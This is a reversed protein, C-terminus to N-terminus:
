RRHEEGGRLPAALDAARYWTDLRPPARNCSRENGRYGTVFNLDLSPDHSSVVWLLTQAAQAIVAAALLRPFGAERLSRAASSGSAAPGRQPPPREPEGPSLMARLAERARERRAGRIGTRELVRKALRVRCHRRHPLGRPPPARRLRERTATAPRRRRAGARPRGSRRSPGRSRASAPPRTSAPPTWGTSWTWGRPRTISGPSARWSRLLSPGRPIWGTTWL